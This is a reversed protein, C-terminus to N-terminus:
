FYGGHMFHGHADDETVIDCVDYIDYMLGDGHEGGGYYEQHHCLFYKIKLFAEKIPNLDPSYPPLFEIHVGIINFFGIYTLQLMYIHSLTAFHDALELVEPGHHISVNDM